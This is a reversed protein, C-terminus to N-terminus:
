MYNAEDTDIVRSMNVEPMALPALTNKTTWFEILFKDYYLKCTKRGHEHIFSLVSDSLLPFGGAHSKIGPPPLSPPKGATDQRSAGNTCFHRRRSRAWLWWPSPTHGASSVNSVLVRIDKRLGIMCYVTYSCLGEVDLLFHRMQSHCMYFRQSFTLLCSESKLIVTLIHGFCCCLLKM